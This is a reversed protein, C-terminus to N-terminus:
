SALWFAFWCLVFYAHQSAVPLQSLHTSGAAFPSWCDQTLRIQATSVLRQISSYVDLNHGAAERLWGPM